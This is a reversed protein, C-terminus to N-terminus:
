PALEDVIRSGKDQMFDALEHSSSFKKGEFFEVAQKAMGILASRKEFHSAGALEVLFAFVAVQQHEEPISAIEGLMRQSAEVCKKLWHAENENMAM